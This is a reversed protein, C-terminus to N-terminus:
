SFKVTRSVVWEFELSAAGSGCGVDLTRAGLHLATHPLLLNQDSELEALLPRCAPLLVPIAPTEIYFCFIEASYGAGKVSPKSWLLVNPIADHRWDSPNCRV